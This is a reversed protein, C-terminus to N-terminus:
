ALFAAIAPVLRAGADELVYHGADACAHVEAHPLRRRWEQLYDRDFVFDRLGWGILTPKGALRELRQGTAAVLAHDREGPRVPIDEVFRLIALRQAPTAYPALYARRVARPLRRAVGFRAAGRAFANAHLVLWRGLASGRVLRLTWPLRKGPLMPFAATNLIVLRRVRQAHEVAWALAIVGGWDHVVLDFTGAPLVQALWREFDAVRRALTFPYVGQAPKDSCGMGIHDPVLCRHAGRLARVLDRYLYGWSPNGHVMVVPAGAGEDLYHQRLGDPQTFWRPAFDFGPAILAPPEGPGVRHREGGDPPAPRKM